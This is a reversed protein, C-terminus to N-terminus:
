RSNISLVSRCKGRTKAYLLFIQCISKNKTFQIFIALKLDRWYMIYNTNMHWHLDIERLEIELREKGNTISAM